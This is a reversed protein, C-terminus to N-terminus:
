NPGGLETQITAIKAAFLRLPHDYGDRLPEAHRLWFHRVLTKLKDLGERELLRRATVYDEGRWPLHPSKVNAEEAFWYDQFRKLDNEPAEEVGLEVEPRRVRIRYTWKRDTLYSDM